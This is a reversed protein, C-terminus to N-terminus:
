LAVDAGVSVGVHTPHQLPKALLSAGFAERDMGNKGVCRELAKYTRTCRVTGAGKQRAPTDVPGKAVVPCSAVHVAAATQSERQLERARDRERKNERAARRGMLQATAVGVVGL